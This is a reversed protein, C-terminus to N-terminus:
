KITAIKVELWAYILYMGMGILLSATGVSTTQQTAYVLAAVAFFMMKILSGVMVSRILASPNTADMRSLKYFNFLSMTFLLLNVIILFNFKIFPLHVLGSNFLLKLIYLILTFLFAILMTPLFRKPNM